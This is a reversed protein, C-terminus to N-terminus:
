PNCLDCRGPDATREGNPYPRRRTHECRLCGELEELPLRTPQGCWGCPLGPIVELLAFGPTGCADCISQLRAVLDLAALRIAKQRTPNLHARMDTELLMSRGMGRPLARALAEDLAAPTVIGKAVVRATAPDPGDRVILGHEPFGVREAFAWAAEPNSIVAHSFNTATTFASAVITLELRRDLLVFLERNAALFPAMPHPGFSGESALALDAGTLALAAEAKAIATERQDGPRPVEGTFTGFDDTDVGEARVLTIGLAEQLLPALLDVKGHQTAMVATRGAFPSGTSPGAVRAPSESTASM